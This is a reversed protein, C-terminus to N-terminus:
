RYRNLLDGLLDEFNGHRGFEMEEFDDPPRASPYSTTGYGKQAKEWHAGYRDYHRRKAVDSLVEYAENLVKFQEAAAENNPNLDPHLQRALQRYSQKIAALSALRSVKLTAYYDTSDQPIPM